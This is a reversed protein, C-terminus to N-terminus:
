HTLRERYSHSYVWAELGSKLEVRVREYDALKEYEDSRELEERTVRFVTGEIVDSEIATRHANRTHTAGILAAVEPKQIRIMTLTYGPLQDPNGDLRRGFTDLQVPETQLTGYSFLLETETSIKM